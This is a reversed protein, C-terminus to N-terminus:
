GPAAPRPHSRRRSSRPGEDYVPAAPAPPAPAARRPAGCRAGRRAAALAKPLVLGQERRLQAADRARDRDGARAGQRARARVLVHLILLNAALACTSVVLFRLGQYAVHGRQGRFTWLRNWAYNNTVAVLFSCTAAVLYHLGLATCSCRSSSSTSSTAARESPASSPSSSGTTAAAWREGRAPSRARLASTTSREM